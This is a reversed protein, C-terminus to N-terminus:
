RGRVPQSRQQDSYSRERTSLLNALYDRAERFHRIQIGKIQEWGRASPLMRSTNGVATSYTERSYANPNVLLGRRRAENAVGQQVAYLFNTAFPLGRNENLASIIQRQSVTEYELDQSELGVVRRLTSRIETTTAEEM